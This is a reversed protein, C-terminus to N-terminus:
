EPSKNSKKKVAVIKSRVSWHAVSFPFKIIIIIVVNSCQFSSHFDVWRFGARGDWGDSKSFRRIWQGGIEAASDQTHLYM